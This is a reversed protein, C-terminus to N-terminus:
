WYDMVRYTIDGIKADKKRRDDLVVWTVPDTLQWEDKAGHPLINLVISSLTTKVALIILKGVSIKSIVVSPFM